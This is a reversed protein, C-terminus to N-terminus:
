ATPVGLLTDYLEVLRRGEPAWNLTQESAKRANLSHRAWLEPDAYYAGVASAISEPSTQDVLLGCDADELISRWLPFDSAIVPTGEAMYEFMKTPLADVNATSRAFLVLGVRGERILDRAEQPPVVGRYDVRSWEPQQRMERELAEPVISGAITLSASDPFGPRSVAKLMPLAGREVAVQGVYVAADQREDWALPKREADGLRPYNHIVTVRRYRLSIRETAAIVHTSLRSVAVILHALAQFLPQLPRPIYGKDAMDSPMDEHSDYIVKAGRARLLPIAWILEPDHLQYLDAKTRLAARVAEVAGATFRSLRRRAPLLVVRVGTDPTELDNEIAILTTDFGAAAATAAERLHVRNDTWPHACSVHTIKLGARRQRAADQGTPQEM